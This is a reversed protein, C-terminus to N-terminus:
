KEDFQESVLCDTRFQFILSKLLLQLPSTLTQSNGSFLSADLPFLLIALSHLACIVQDVHKAKNFESIVEGVKDLVEVEVESRRRSGDEM